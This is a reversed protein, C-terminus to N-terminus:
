LLAVVVDLLTATLNSYILDFGGPDHRTSLRNELIPAM